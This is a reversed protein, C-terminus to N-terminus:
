GTRLPNNTAERLMNHVKNPTQHAFIM